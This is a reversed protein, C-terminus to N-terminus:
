MNEMNNKQRWYRERDRIRAKELSGNGRCEDCCYKAGHISNFPKGCWRCNDLIGKDVEAQKEVPKEVPKVIPQKAKWKGYSMGAALATTVEQALKDMTKGKETPVSIMRCQLEMGNRVCEPKETATRKGDRVIRADFLRLPMDM